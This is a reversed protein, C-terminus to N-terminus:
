LDTVEFGKERRRPSLTKEHITGARTPGALFPTGGCMNKAEGDPTPRGCGGEKQNRCENEGEGRGGSCGLDTRELELTEDYGPGRNGPRRAQDCRM